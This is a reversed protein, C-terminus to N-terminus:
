GGRPLWSSVVQPNRERDFLWFEGGYDWNIGLTPHVALWPHASHKWGYYSAGGAGWSDVGNARGWRCKKLSHGGCIQFREAYMPILVLLAWRYLLPFRLDPIESWLVKPNRKRSPGAVVFVLVRPKPHSLFYGIFFFMSLPCCCLQVILRSLVCSVSQNLLTGGSQLTVDQQSLIKSIAAEFYNPILTSNM